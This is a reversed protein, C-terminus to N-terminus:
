AYVEMLVRRTPRVQRHIMGRQWADIDGAVAGDVGLYLGLAGAPLVRALKQFIGLEMGAIGCIYVLGRGRELLPVILEAHTTLRDQVYVGRGGGGGSGGGSGGGGTERSVATVYSFNAHKAALESLWRDYLLDTRYAAGLVLVIRSQCGGELMDILMGRFPAVGTGTAFFVYDHADLDQPLVFKKGSPGTVLVKDGPRRDCLYNSAVGMFLGPETLHEDIVRKVTVSHVKGAGDEGRTPSALSYLRLKHPRGQADAGPPIVGLSQGPICAGALPTGSLDLEIHRTFGASKRGASTCLESSVVTALVPESPKVLHMQAARLPVEFATESM